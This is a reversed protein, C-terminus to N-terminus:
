TFPAFSIFGFLLVTLRRSARRPAGSALLRGGVQAMALFGPLRLRKSLISPMTTMIAASAGGAM